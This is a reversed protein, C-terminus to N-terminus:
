NKCSNDKKQEENTECLCEDCECPPMNAIEEMVAQAHSEAIDSINHVCMGEDSYQGCINGVAIALAQKALEEDYYCLAMALDYLRAGTDTILKHEHELEMEEKTHEKNEMNNEKM